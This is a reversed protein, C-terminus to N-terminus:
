CVFNDYMIVNLINQIFVLRTMLSINTVSDDSYKIPLGTLPDTVM